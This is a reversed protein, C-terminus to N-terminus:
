ARNRKRSARATKNKPRRAKTGGHKGATPAVKTALHRAYQREWRTWARAQSRQRYYLIRPCRRREVLLTVIRSASMERSKWRHEWRMQRAFSTASPQPILSAWYSSLGAMEEITPQRMSLQVYLLVNRHVENEKM